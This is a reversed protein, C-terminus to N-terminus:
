LRDLYSIPGEGTVTTSGRLTDLYSPVGGGVPSTSGNKLSSLYSSDYVGEYAPTSGITPPGNLKVAENHNLKVKDSNVFAGNTQVNMKGYVADQTFPGDYTGGMKPAEMIIEDDDDSVGVAVAVAAFTLAAAGGIPVAFNSLGKGQKEAQPSAKVSTDEGGNFSLSKLFNKTEFPVPAAVVEAKSEKEARQSFPNLFNVSGSKEPSAVKNQLSPENTEASSPTLSKKVDNIGDTVSQLPNPFTFPKPDENVIKLPSLVSGAFPNTLDKLKEKNPTQVKLSQESTVKPSEVESVVKLAPKQVEEKPKSSVTPASSDTESESKPPVIPVVPVVPVFPKLEAASKPIEAVNPPLPAAQKIEAIPSVPKLEAAKLEVVPAEPKVEIASTVESVPAPPTVDNNAAAIAAPNLPPTAPKAFPLITETPVELAEPAVSATPKIETAATSTTPQVDTPAFTSGFSGKIPESATLTSTQEISPPSTPNTPSQATQTLEKVVVPAETVEAVKAAEVVTSELPNQLEPVATEVEAPVNMDKSNALLKAELSENVTFEPEQPVSAKVTADKLPIEKEVSTTPPTEPSTKKTVASSSSPSEPTEAAAKKANKRTAVEVKETKAKNLPSEVRAVNKLISLGPGQATSFIVAAAAATAVAGGVAPQLCNLFHYCCSLTM